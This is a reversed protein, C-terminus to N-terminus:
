IEFKGLYKRKEKDTKILKAEAMFGIFDVQFEANVTKSSQYEVM